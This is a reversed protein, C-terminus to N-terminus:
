YLRIPSAKCNTSVKSINLKKKEYKRILNEVSSVSIHNNTMEYNYVATEKDFDFSRIGFAICGWYNNTIIFEHCGIFVLLLDSGSSSKAEYYSCNYKLKENYLKKLDKM